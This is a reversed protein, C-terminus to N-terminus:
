HFVFNHARFTCPMFRHEHWAACVACICFRFDCVFKPAFRAAKSGLEAFGFKRSSQYFNLIRACHKKACAFLNLSHTKCFVFCFFERLIRAVQTAFIRSAM